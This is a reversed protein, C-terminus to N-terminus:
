WRELRSHGTPSVCMLETPVQVEPNTDYLRRTAVWDNSLITQAIRDTIKLDASSVTEDLMNGWTDWLLTEVKNLAALELKLYNRIFWAGRYPLNPAVGYVMPDIKNQRWATWVSSATQFAGAPMDHIDFKMMEPPIQPDVMVWRLGNWYEAVVHDFNFGSMLYPAFGVRTRAPVGRTRMIAVFLTAFDRCCGVLCESPARAITLPATDRAQLRELMVSVRRSDIESLREPPFQIGSARYHVILGRLAACLEPISEPLEELLRSFYGPQTISSQTSYFELEERM